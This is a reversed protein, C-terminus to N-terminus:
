TTCCTNSNKVKISLIKKDVLIINDIISPLFNNIFLKLKNKNNIFSLFKTNSDGEMKLIFDKLVEIVLDKKQKGSVRYKEVVQMLMITIKVINDSILQEDNIIHILNFHLKKLRESPLILSVNHLMNDESM